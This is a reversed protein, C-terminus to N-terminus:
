RSEFILGILLVGIAALTVVNRLILLNSGPYLVLDAFLLLNSLGLIFFCLASWFLLRSRTTRYAKGLLFACGCCTLFCLIYILIPIM